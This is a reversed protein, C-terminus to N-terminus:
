ITQRSHSSPWAKLYPKLTFLHMQGFLLDRNRYRRAMSVHNAMDLLCGFEPKLFTVNRNTKGDRTHVLGMVLALKAHKISETDSGGFFRLGDKVKDWTLNFSGIGEGSNESQAEMADLVEYSEELLYPRM